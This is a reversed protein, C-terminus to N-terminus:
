THAIYVVNRANRKVNIISLKHLDHLELRRIFCVFNLIFFISNLWNVPKDNSMNRTLFTWHMNM